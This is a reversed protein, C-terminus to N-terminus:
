KKRLTRAVAGRTKEQQRASGTSTIAKSTRSKTSDQVRQAGTQSAQNEKPRAKSTEISSRGQKDIAVSAGSAVLLGALVGCTLLYKKMVVIMIKEVSPNSNENVIYNNICQVIVRLYRGNPRVIAEQQLPSSKSANGSLYPFAARRPTAATAVCSIRKTGWKRRLMRGIQLLPKADFQRGPRHTATFRVFLPRISRRM